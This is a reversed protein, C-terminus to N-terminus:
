SWLGKEKDYKLDYKEITTDKPNKITKYKNLDLLLKNRQMKYKNEQFYEGMYKKNKETKRYKKHYEKPDFYEKKDSKTEGEKDEESKDFSENLIEDDISEDFTGNSIEDEKLEKISKDEILECTIKKKAISDEKEVKNTIQKSENIINMDCKEMEDYTGYNSKQNCLEGIIIIKNKCDEIQKKNFRYWEGKHRLKDYNNKILIAIMSSNMDYDWKDIIKLNCPNIKDLEKLRIEVDDTVDITYLETEEMNIIYLYKGSM